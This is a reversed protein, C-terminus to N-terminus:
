EVRWLSFTACRWWAAQPGRPPSTACSCPPSPTRRPRGRSPARAWTPFGTETELVSQLLELYTLKKIQKLKPVTTNDGGPPPFQIQNPFHLTKSIRSCNKPAKHLSLIAPVQHFEIKEPALSRLFSGFCAGPLLFYPPYVIWELPFYEELLKGSSTPRGLAKSSLAM